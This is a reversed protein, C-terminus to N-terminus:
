DDDRSRRMARIENVKKTIRGAQEDDATMIQAELFDLVAEQQDWLADIDDGHENWEKLKGTTALVLWTVVIVILGGVAAAASNVLITYVLNDDSM